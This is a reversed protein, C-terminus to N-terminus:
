LPCGLGRFIPEVGRKLGQKVCGKSTVTGSLHNVPSDLSDYLGVNSFELNWGAVSIILIMGM